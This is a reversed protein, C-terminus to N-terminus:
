LRQKKNIKKAQSVDINYTDEEVDVFVPKAGLIAITEATSIFSFSTTIVEDGAKIGIAM